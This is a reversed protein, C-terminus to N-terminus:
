PSPVISATIPHAYDAWLQNATAADVESDHTVFRYNSVFPEDASIQFDGLVLPAYCFYPMSPHLRVSQPARFNGPHCYLTVGAVGGDVRGSMDCWNPRDHNGGARFKGNSTLFGSNGVTWTRHGRIAMGGYHYQNITLPSDAVCRQRSRLDFVFPDAINYVRVRWDESLVPIEKGSTTDIHDITTQLEAFVPGALVSRTASHRVVAQRNKQEWFNVKRGEFSCNTWAFMVGHQHTHDTPCFDDTVLRGSPTLLPHIHGSRRYIPDLGAPSEIMAHNYQLVMQKGVFVRFSGDQDVVRIRSAQLRNTGENDRHIEVRRHENAGLSEILLYLQRPTGASLQALIPTGDEFMAVVGSWDDCESPLVVSAIANEREIGNGGLEVTVAASAISVTLLWAVIMNRVFWIM